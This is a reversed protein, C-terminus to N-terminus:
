LGRLQGGNGKLNAVDRPQTHISFISGESGSILVIEIQDPHDVLSRIVFLLMERIRREAEQPTKSTSIMGDRRPEASFCSFERTQQKHAVQSAYSRISRGRGRGRRIQSEVWLSLSVDDRLQKRYAVAELLDIIGM